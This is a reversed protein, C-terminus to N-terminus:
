AATVEVEAFRIKVPSNSPSKMASSPLVPSTSYREFVPPLNFPPIIVYEAPPLCYMATAAPLAFPKQATGGAEAAITKNEKGFSEVAARHDFLKRPRCISTSVHARTNVSKRDFLGLPANGSSHL